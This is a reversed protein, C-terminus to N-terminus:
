ERKGNQKKIELKGSAYWKPTLESIDVEHTKMHAIQTDSNKLWAQEDTLNPDFPAVEEWGCTCWLRIAAKKM